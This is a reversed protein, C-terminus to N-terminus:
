KGSLVGEKIEGLHRLCVSGLRQIHGPLTQRLIFQPAVQGSDSFVDLGQRNSVKRVWM